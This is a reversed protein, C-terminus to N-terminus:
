RRTQEAIERIRVFRGSDILNRASALDLDEALLASVSLVLLLLLRM